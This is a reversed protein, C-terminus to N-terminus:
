AHVSSRRRDCNSGFCDWRNRAFDGNAAPFRVKFETIEVGRDAAGAWAPRRTGVLAECPLWSRRREGIRSQGAPERRRGMEKTMM